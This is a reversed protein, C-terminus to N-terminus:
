GRERPSFMSAYTDTGADLPEDGSVRPFCKTSPFPDIRARSM